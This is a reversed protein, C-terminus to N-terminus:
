LGAGYVVLWLLVRTRASMCGCLWVSECVCLCVAMCPRVRSASASAYGHLCASARARACFMRAEVTDRPLEPIHHKLIHPKFIISQQGEAASPTPVECGFQYPLPTEFWQIKLGRM